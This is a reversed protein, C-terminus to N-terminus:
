LRVPTTLMSAIWPMMRLGDKRTTHRTVRWNVETLMSLLDCWEHQELLVDCLERIFWSGQTHGRVAYYELFVHKQKFCQRRSLIVAM